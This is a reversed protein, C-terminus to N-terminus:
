PLEAKQKTMIDLGKAKASYKLRQSM